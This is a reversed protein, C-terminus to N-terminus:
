HSPLHREHHARTAIFFNHRWPIHGMIRWRVGQVRIPIRPPVIFDTMFDKTSASNQQGHSKSHSGPHTSRNFAPSSSPRDSDSGSSWGEVSLREFSPAKAQSPEPEPWRGPIYHTRIGALVLQRINALQGVFHMHSVYKQKYEADDDTQPAYEASQYKRLEIAKQLRNLFLNTVLAAETPDNTLVLALDVLVRVPLNDYDVSTPDLGSRAQWEAPGLVRVTSQVLYQKIKLTLDKIKEYRSKWTDLRM